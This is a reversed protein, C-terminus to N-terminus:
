KIGFHEKILRVTEDDNACRMKGTKTEHTQSAIDICEKVILKAFDQIEDTMDTDEIFRSVLRGDGYDKFGGSIEALEKIRENM